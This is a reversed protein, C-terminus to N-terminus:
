TQTETVSAPAAAPFSCSSGPCVAPGPLLSREAMLLLPCAFVWPLRGFPSGSALALVVQVVFYVAILVSYYSLTYPLCGRM